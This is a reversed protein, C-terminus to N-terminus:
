EPPALQLEVGLGVAVKKSSAKKLCHDFFIMEQVTM